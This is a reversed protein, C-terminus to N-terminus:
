VGLFREMTVAQGPMAKLVAKDATVLPVALVRALVVFEADYATLGSAGATELVLDDGIAHEGGALALSAAKMIYAVQSPSLMQRRQYTALVNRMESRWLLPVHWDPDRKRVAQALETHQGRVWCYQIINTDVVIV